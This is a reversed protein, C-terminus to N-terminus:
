RALQSRDLDVFGVDDAGAERSLQRLWEADVKQASQQQFEGRSIAADNLEHFRKVTPHQSLASM